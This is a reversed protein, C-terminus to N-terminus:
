VFAAVVAMAITPAAYLLAFGLLVAVGRWRRTTFLQYLAFLPYTMWLLLAHDFSPRRDTPFKPDTVLWTIVLLSILLDYLQLSENSPLAGGAYRYAACGSTAIAIVAAVILYSKRLGAPTRVAPAQVSQTPM